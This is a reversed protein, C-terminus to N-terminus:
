KKKVTLVLEERLSKPLFYDTLSRIKFSWPNASGESSEINYAMASYNAVKFGNKELLLKLEPWTFLSYHIPTENNHFIRNILSGRNPTTIVMIGGKKLVRQAEKVFVVPRKLHEVLEGAILTDFENTKYPLKEEASGKKYYKKDANKELEIDFGFVNKRGHKKLIEEHLSCAYYGVDLVKGHLKNLIYEVRDM